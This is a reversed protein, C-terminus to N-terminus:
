SHGFIGLREASRVLDALSSTQMKQMLHGRHVKITKETIGLADAIQKNLMGTVVRAMVERERATLSQYRRHLDALKERKLRTARDSNIARRIGDLLDQERFPKTLFEIAGAKMAQVTMPIDGHGTIFIIPIQVGAKALEGQLDLGSLHPL